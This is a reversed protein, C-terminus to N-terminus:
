SRRIPQSLARRLENLLDVDPQTSALISRLLKFEQADESIGLQTLIPGVYAVEARAGLPSTPLLHSALDLSILACEQLMQADAFRERVTVYTESARADDGLASSIRALLWDVKLEFTSGGYALFPRSHRLVQLAEVLRGTNTLYISLNQLATRLLEESTKSPAQSAITRIASLAISAAEESHGTLELVMASKLLTSVLRIPDNQQRRLTAAQSLVESAEPLRRLDYLLSAKFELLHPNASDLALAKNLLHEASHFDEVVRHANGAYGHLLAATHADTEPPLGVLAADCWARMTAPDSHRLSFGHEAVALRERVTGPQNRFYLRAAEPDRFRL